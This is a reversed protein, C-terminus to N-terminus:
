YFSTIWEATPLFKEKIFHLMNGLQAAADAACYVNWLSFICSNWICYRELSVLIWPSFPFSLDIKTIIHSFPLNRAWCTSKSMVKWKALSCRGSSAFYVVRVGGCCASGWSDTSAARGWRRMFLYVCMELRFAKAAGAHLPNIIVHKFHGGSSTKDLRHGPLSMVPVEAPRCGRVWMFGGLTGGRLRVWRLMEAQRKAGRWRQM